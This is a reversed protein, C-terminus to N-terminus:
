SQNNWGSTPPKCQPLAAARAPRALLALQAPPTRALAALAVAALAALALAVAALAALALAVAAPAAAVLQLVRQPRARLQGARREARISSDGCNSECPDSSCSSGLLAAGAALMVFVSQWVACSRM